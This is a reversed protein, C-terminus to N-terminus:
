AHPIVNKAGVGSSSARISKGWTALTALATWYVGPTGSMRDSTTFVDGTGGTTSWKMLDGLADCSTTLSEQSNSNRVTPCITLWALAGDSLSPKTESEGSSSSWRASM